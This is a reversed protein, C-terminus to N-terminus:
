KNKERWKKVGDNLEHYKPIVKKLNTKLNETLSELVYVADNYKAAVNNGYQRGTEDKIRKKMGKIDEDLGDLFGDLNKPDKFLKKFNDDIDVFNPAIKKMNEAQNGM